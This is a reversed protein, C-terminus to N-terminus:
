KDTNAGNDNHLSFGETIPRMSPAPANSLLNNINNAWNGGSNNHSLPMATGQNSGQRNGSSTTNSNNESM